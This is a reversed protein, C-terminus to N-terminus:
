RQRVIRYPDCQLKALETGGGEDASGRFSYFDDARYLVAQVLPAPVEAVSWGVTFNVEVPSLRDTYVSPWSQGAKPAIIAGEDDTLDEQYDTGAPSGTSTPGRLQIQSDNTDYYDIGAVASCQGFPLVFPRGGWPFDQLVWKWQQTVLARNTFDECWQVAARLYIRLIDDEEDHTIKLHGKLQELTVPEQEPATTRSLGM